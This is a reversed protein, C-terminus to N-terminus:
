SCAEGRPVNPDFPIVSFLDRHIVMNGGFVFPTEKLRPETGIIKDFAENMKSIANKEANDYKRRDRAEFKEAYDQIQESIFQYVARTLPSNSLSSRDNQKFPELSQLECEGYIHASYSSRVDFEPIPMYGIYGSVAKYGINHRVKKKYRMSGQSTRLILAGQPLSNGNTTSVVESSLPDELKKPIMIVRPEEEGEIAKIPPLTLKNGRNYLKGNIVVFVNCLELTQIMQPHDQLNDILHRTPIRNRYGKPGVGTVLTFGDAMRIAESGVKQIVQLPCGVNKLVEHLNQILNEVRFDRGKERDPIYGFRFSGSIVGYHNGLDKKVTHVLSYDEFMQTMYCKGGNGHGGQVPITRDEGLAAEPDAWIRFNKEIISSTMGSFDLVSISPKRDKREHDFIVFISRKPEPADERAYADASNKIWEPLGAEHSQYHTCILRIAGEEHVKVDDDPTYILKDM